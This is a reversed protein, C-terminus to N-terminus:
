EAIYLQWTGPMIWHTATLSHIGNIVHAARVWSPITVKNYYYGSNSDYYLGSSEEYVMNSTQQAAIAETATRELEEAINLTSSNEPNTWDDNSRHDRDGNGSPKNSTITPYQNNLLNSKM